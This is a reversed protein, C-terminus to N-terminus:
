EGGKLRYNIRRYEDYVPKWIIECQKREEPFFKELTNLEKQITPNFPCGKCGTRIFNYPPKYIECIDINYTDILWEEWEKNVPVLPQFNKLKKGTFTLCKATTRRGGESPMIGVIGYPKKNEISWKKVPEEKLKICCKDSIKLGMNNEFQYRLIKPCSKFSSWPEKDENEGLYQKVAYTKGKKQYTELFESHSKSKFPYGFEELTDRINQKPTIIIVRTDCKSKEIVFDCIMKLEIGTNAYVRPINNKPIALDLLFSLVTSDKGGSFALYFNEEGYKGITSKIKEIRDNLLFENETM